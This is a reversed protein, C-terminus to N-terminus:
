APTVPARSQILRYLAEAAPSLQANKRILLTLTRSIVPEKLAIVRLDPYANKQIALAPVIAAAVGEAVLGVATSSRQVEYHISLTYNEQGNNMCHRHLANELLSRNGSAQGAFILPYDQLQNWSIQKREALAHDNRCILVFQDELLPFTELEPHSAGAMSIGFEVERRLVAEVVGSSAHDLIKIRNDPFRASYEQMIQPLYRVGATPVCAISFDGRQAKGTERIETLAASLENLLRRAQPLFNQGIATLAISRTTREILRVGLADELHRLRQTMATQTVHLSEAAKQFGGQDAIAIFAQVGLIDIRM